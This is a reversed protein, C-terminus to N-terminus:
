SVTPRVKVLNPPQLRLGFSVAPRSSRLKRAFQGALRQTEAVQRIEVGNINWEDNYQRAAMSM